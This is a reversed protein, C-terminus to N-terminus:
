CKTLQDKFFPLFAEEWNFVIPEMAELAYLMHARSDRHAGQSGALRHMTLLIAHLPDDVVAKIPIKKGYMRTSPICYRNILEQTTM